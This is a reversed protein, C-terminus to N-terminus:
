GCDGNHRTGIYKEKGVRIGMQGVGERKDQVKPEDENKTTVARLFYKKKQFIDSRVKGFARGVSIPSPDVKM